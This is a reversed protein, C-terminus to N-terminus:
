RSRRRRRQAPAVPASATTSRTAERAGVKARVRTTKDVRILVQEEHTSGPSAVRVTHRGITLTRRLPAGGIPEGDLHVVAGKVDASVALTGKLKARAERFLTVLEPKFQQPDLNLLPDRRLAERFSRVAENRRNLVAHHVGLHLHIRGVLKAPARQENALPLAERLRAGFCDLQLKGYCALAAELKREAGAPGAAHAPSARSVCLGLLLIITCASRMSTM